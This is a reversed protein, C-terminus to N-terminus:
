RKVKKAPAVPIDAKLTRVYRDVPRLGNEALVRDLGTLLLDHLSLDLELALKRLRKSEAPLLYLTTGTTSGKIGSRSKLDAKRAAVPVKMQIIEAGPPPCSATSIAEETRPRWSLSAEVLPELLYRALHTVVPVAVGDGFIRFTANYARPLRYTEPIGMLKAGEAASMYRTRVTDGEVAMIMQSSGRGAPTVLCSAFGDTRVCATRSRGMVGPRMRVYITGITPGDTAQAAKLRRLDHIGMSDVLVQTETAAHWVTNDTATDILDSLRATMPTPIPVSWWVWSKRVAAPLAAAARLIDPTHFPSTPTAVTLGAPISVGSHVAVIFVRKRSQPLFLAADVLVAGVRYGASCLAGVVSAFDKGGHSSILGRVNELAIVHPGRGQDVLQRITRWCPWFAGSSSGDLGDRSGAISVDVCPFSAWILDPREPIDTPGINRVDDHRVGEVGFNETYATIKRQDNDVSGLYRWRDGLGLRVLGGGSFFEYV